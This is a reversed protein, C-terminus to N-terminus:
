GPRRSAICEMQLFGFFADCRGEFQFDIEQVEAFQFGTAQLQALFASSGCSSSAGPIISSLDALDVTLLGDAVTASRLADATEASFWSTAGSETEVPGALLAEFAGPIPDQGSPIQRSFAQVEACDVSRDVGFFVQVTQEQPESITSDSPPTSQPGGTTTTSEAARTCAAVVLVTMVLYSWTSRRM